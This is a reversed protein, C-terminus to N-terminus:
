SYLSRGGDLVLVQGTIYPANNILYNLAEAIDEPKGARKMVTRSLIKDRTANDLHEPWLIAGPSVANVRVDPGFERALAMTLMVLGAKATSYLPYGKLPRHGYIDTINIICGGTACLQTYARQALFFPAKLNTNFLEDWQQLSAERAPTPYFCSANNILVDLRGFCSVAEDIIQGAAAVDNLNAQVLRASEPRRSNLDHALARAEDASRHYHIVIDMGRQHLDRAVAAGIRRSAGTILVTKNSM